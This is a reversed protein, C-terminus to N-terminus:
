PTVALHEAALEAVLEEATKGWTCVAHPLIGTDDPEPVDDDAAPPQYDPDALEIWSPPQCPEPLMVPPISVPTGSPIREALLQDRVRALLAADPTASPTAAQAAAAKVDTIAEVFQQGDPDTIDAPDALDGAAAHRAHKPEHQEGPRLFACALVIVVLALIATSAIFAPM